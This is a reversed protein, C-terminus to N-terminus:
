ERHASTCQTYSAPPAACGSLADATWVPRGERRGEFLLAHTYGAAILTQRATEYHGGLHRAEHADATVTVPVNEGRLLELLKQSPCPERLKGRNLGGTNIEVVAGSRAALGTIRTLRKKYAEGGPSFWQERSNNKKVIDIHGLIDFGGARIMGEVADWYREMLADGNGSFRRAVFRDFEEQPGDVTEPEGGGPPFVYHVSGITYDLDLERYDKDAPGMLGELYDVELGLYVPLKGEWRRRADRVAGLYADFQEEPLHWDSVLGTKKTIPAHASFGISVFGREWASRCFTEIDDHGDCFTTHTHLCSYRM